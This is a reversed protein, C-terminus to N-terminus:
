APLSRPIEQLTYAELIDGVQFLNFGNVAVGCELPAAVEAVDEQLRKLSDLRGEYIIERNRAVRLREGRVMKGDLVRCGAITGLRSIKFLQLVEAHGLLVEEYQPELMGIMAAKVDNIIDYIVNYMRIEIGEDEALKRDRSEITTNFGIIIANSAAALMVDSKGITGVGSHVIHIHVEENDLRQLSQCIAEVSGQVDAKVILALEKVEGEQIQNFLDELSARSPTASNLKEARALAERAEAVQRAQRENRFVEIREGVEPVGSLGLVAVPTAPGASPIPDGKYDLMTRIRGYVSGIVLVDGVRLTGDRVLVTAVPGRHADLKAEIVVGQAPAQPNGRLEEMEAVLLLTELLHDIGDGRLASVPVCITEGGWEEAVLGHDMLQRKVREINAEERDIKNIAVVIPVKAAKAHHIAEVTQPMVGDDAAVVLVAIDAVKAGRARMETFAEHGPTDLFTISQGDVPVEYAGIHQTIGGAETEVVNAKRITDLLTTKGHDVHGLVTVV